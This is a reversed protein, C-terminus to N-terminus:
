RAPRECVLYVSACLDPYSMGLQYCGDLYDASIVDTGLLQDWQFNALAKFFIGSRHFVTLGGARADRELTDLTYTIRHGHAQESATVATAHSILGMKVAIQRSPAHANPCAVFLRGGDALWHEGIRRLLAVPDDLHELVHTLLINDYRGPLEVTEFTGEVFTVRDGHRARAQAIAEPSAEVCTVNGSFPLLHRTFDGRYSGLELFSGARFFPAFSRVMFPHMVDFDFSYAYPRDELDRQETDYDRPADQTLPRTMSLQRDRPPGDPFFGMRAYLTQARINDEAVKLRVRAHAARTAHDISAAVLRYAIGRGLWDTVVAVHNIYATGGPGDNVYASVLGVLTGDPTWAEFTEAKAVVKEAFADLDVRTRLPPSFAADVSRLHERVDRLTATGHRLQIESM